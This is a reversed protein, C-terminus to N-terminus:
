WAAESSRKADEFLELASKVHSKARQLHQREEDLASESEVSAIMSDLSRSINQLDLIYDIPYERTAKKKGFIPTRNKFWSAVPGDKAAM